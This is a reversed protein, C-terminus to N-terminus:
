ASNAHENDDADIMKFKKMKMITLELAEREADQYPIPFKNALKSHDHAWKTVNYLIRMYFKSPGSIIMTNRFIRLQYDDWGGILGYIFLTLIPFAFLVVLIFIAAVTLPLILNGRSSKVVDNFIKLMLLNFPILASICVLPAIFTQYPSSIRTKITKRQVYYWQATLKTLYAPLDALLYTFVAYQEGIIALIGWPSIMIFYSLFRASQEFVLAYTRYEPKNCGQVIDSGFNIPFVFFKSILLIPIMWSAAAYNGGVENLVPPILIAIEVTLFSSLLFWHKWQCEIFFKTLEKKNNNFSESVAPTIPFSISIIGAISSAIGYLGIIFSYNPLWAITMLLVTFNVAANIIYAGVLKGGFILCEKAIKFDFDPIITEGLKVNLPKLVRAFFRGSIVMAIFDDLYSGLIYGWTAGMVEGLMVNQIGIWRGIIIFIIQTASQIFVSQIISVKNTLDFRQFGNLAGNYAGLMGPYQTTSYVLFFWIAYEINKPMFWLSYISVATTQVLGTFMQFWIFFQIYKIARKPDKVSYEAVFRQVAPGTSVDMITFFLSFFQVTMSSFGLASPYPLIINPIIYGVVALGPLALVLIITYMYWFSALPRHYGIMNWLFERDGKKELKKLNEILKERKDIDRM